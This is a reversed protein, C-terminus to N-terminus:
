SSPEILEVRNGAPDRTFGRRGGFVASQETFEFRGGRLRELLRDFDDVVVAFHADPHVAGPRESLHLQIGGDSMELWAGQESGANPPKPIRRLGLLDAYFDAVEDTRGPPVVVNVHHLVTM